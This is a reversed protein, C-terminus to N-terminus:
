FNTDQSGFKLEGRLTIKSLCCLIPIPITLRMNRLSALIVINDPHVCKYVFTYLSTVDAPRLRPRFTIYYVMIEITIKKKNKCNFSDTLPRLGLVYKM